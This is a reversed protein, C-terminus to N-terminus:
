CCQGTINTVSHSLSFVALPFAGLRGAAAMSILTSAYTLLEELVMPTGLVLLRRCCPLAIPPLSAPRSLLAAPTPHPAGGESQLSHLVADCDRPSRSRAGAVMLTVPVTCCTQAASHPEGNASLRRRCSDAPALLVAAAPAAAGCSRRKWPGLHM